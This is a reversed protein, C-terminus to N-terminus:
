QEVMKTLAEESLIKIGLKKAKALKTPGAKEGAILYDLKESISSLVKGGNKKVIYKLAEREFNKFVGSIVFNKGQLLQSQQTAKSKETAFKLGAQKLSALLQLNHTDQFYTIVSKAVKEGIEPVATLEELSAHALADINQFHHALKEAATEGVHRIGLAFLVNEFPMQKSHAIGQLLNQTATEKFGELPYVEEYRLTYLDAPTHVLGKKFLLAVTKSGISDIDMAKRHVFHAIGGKIQPPCNKQNPCYHVAEGEERTLPTACDPCHTIFPIAKSGPKRKVVDVGIVKPIIEGGKEVFVTDGEHLNLREIEDANHLSARKVTTGALRVPQLQAVPTIAGTRGVQYIVKELVTSTSAPKYKYAIAWRPSKATAGLKNQQAIRNVKVVIGDVEAPLNSKKTKWHDIYNMIEQVTKCKKYTPSVHFGWKELLKVGAEHTPLNMEDSILVYLYCDLGRQAVVTADLMKLTGSAANRPNALLEEGQSAREKNLAEFTARPIFAEGRVEFAQPIDSGKIFQPITKITKANRMIDDGKEGDGRTVVRKLAGHEYLLSMAVGDFKLECFFEISEEKLLKQIRKVFEDIEKESYTNSLSLMPYQHYVTEFNKSPAEGVSQTPSDKLRLAPFQNELQILKELLQDFEYDSIESRAYQFYQKNYYNILSTLREIEKKAEKATM